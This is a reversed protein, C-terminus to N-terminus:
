RRGGDVWARRLAGARAASPPAAARGTRRLAVLAPAVAENLRELADPRRQELSTLIAAAKRWEAADPDIALAQEALAAAADPDITGGSEIRESLALVGDVFDGIQASKADRTGPQPERRWVSAASLAGSLRRSPDVESRSPPTRLIYRNRGFARQLAEVASRAPPLAAGTNVAALGQEARTMLHIAASIERRASNELRGEQIESSQEAEVEEDEVHGGMLFIFNGRVARQEAAVAATADRLAERTLTREAARLREIKLVVMQQSLAYREQEPPLEFGEFAVQGPGAIEIFFTDSSSEGATGPRRDRAVARYVLSDGPELRLPGLAIEGTATWARDSTRTLVAPLTGEVFEFQEGTGSVKTYRLDFSALALDDNATATVGIRRSADPLLLDRAPLDIRISPAHDPTVTFPVLREPAEGTQVAFYGSVKAVVEAIAVAGRSVLPLVRAGLRVRRFSPEGSVEIRVRSGELAELREPDVERRVPLGSYAPPEIVVVISSPGRTQDTGIVREISVRVGTTVLRPVRTNVASGVLTAAVFLALPTGMPRVAAADIPRVLRSADAVVRERMWASAREPHTGLEEATIVANRCSPLAREVLRAAHALTREDRRAAFMGVGAVLGISAGVVAPATSGIARLVAIASAGVLAAGAGAHLAHARRVRRSVVALLREVATPEPRM